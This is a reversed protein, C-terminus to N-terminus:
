AKKARALSRAMKDQLTMLYDYVTPSEEGAIDRRYREPKRQRQERPGLQLTKYIHNIANVSRLLHMFEQNDQM